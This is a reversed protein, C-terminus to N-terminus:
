CRDIVIIEDARRLISLTNLVSALYDRGRAGQWSSAVPPSALAVLPKPRRSSHQSAPAQGLAWGLGGVRADRGMTMVRSGLFLEPTAHQNELM